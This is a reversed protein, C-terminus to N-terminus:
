SYVDSSVRVMNVKRHKIVRDEEGDKPSENEEKPTEKCEPTTKKDKPPRGLPKGPPRGM